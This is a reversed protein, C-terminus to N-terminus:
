LGNYFGFYQGVKGASVFEEGKQYKRLTGKSICIDRWVDSDIVLNDRSPMCSAM